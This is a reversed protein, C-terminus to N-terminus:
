SRTTCSENQSNDEASFGVSESVIKWSKGLQWLIEHSIFGNELVDFEDRLWDGTNHRGQKQIEFDCFTVNRYSFTLIRDHYAGLLKLTLDLTRDEDSKVCAKLALDMLWADHPCDHHNWDQYWKSSVFAKTADPLKPVVTELHAEYAKCSQVAEDM